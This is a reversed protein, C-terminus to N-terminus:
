LERRVVTRPIVIFLLKKDFVRTRKIVNMLFNNSNGNKTTLVHRVINILGAFVGELGIFTQSGYTEMSAWGLLDLCIVLRVM